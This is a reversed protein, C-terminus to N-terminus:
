EARHHLPLVDMRAATSDSDHGTLATHKRPCSRAAQQVDIQSDCARSCILTSLPSIHSDISAPIKRAGSGSALRTLEIRENLEMAIIEGARLERDEMMLVDRRVASHLFGPRM